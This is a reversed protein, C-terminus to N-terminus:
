GGKVSRRMPVEVGKRRLMCAVSAVSRATTKAEPHAAKILEVIDAYSLSPDALLTRVSAGITDTSARKPKETLKQKANDPEQSGFSEIRAILKAKSQKWSKIREGEPCRENHIAVLEATALGTLNNM